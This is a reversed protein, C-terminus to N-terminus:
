QDIKPMAIVPAYGQHVTTSHASIGAIGQGVFAPPTRDAHTPSLYAATKALVIPKKFANGAALRNGHRGFRTSIQYYSKHPDFGQGQPASPALTMVSTHNDPTLHAPWQHAQTHSVIFKGLGISADRGYGMSGIDELASTIQAAQIRASDYVVYLDLTCGEPYWLQSMQYPAFMGTGTTGTARNISNHMHMSHEISGGFAHRDDEAYTQWENIAHHTHETKLWRKAKNIKRQAASDKNQASPPRMMVPPITPLPLYGAPFVDSVVIFPKQATYGQLLETLKSEGLQESLTWCLHGFLTDGVLPTGFATQPKLQFYQIQYM